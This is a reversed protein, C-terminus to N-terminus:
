SVYFNWFDVNEASITNQFSWIKADSINQRSGAFLMSRELSISSVHFKRFIFNEHFKWGQINMFM